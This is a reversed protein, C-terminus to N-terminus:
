RSAFLQGNKLGTMGAYRATECEHGVFLRRLREDVCEDLLLRM